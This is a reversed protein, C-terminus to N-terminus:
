QHRPPPPPPPLLLLLLLLLPPPPSTHQLLFFSLLYIYIFQVEKPSLHSPFQQKGRGLVLSMDPLASMLLKHYRICENTTWKLASQKDKQIRDIWVNMPLSEMGVCYSHFASFPERRRVVHTQENNSVRRPTSVTRSRRCRKRPPTFILEQEQSAVEKNDSTISVHPINVDNMSDEPTTRDSHNFTLNSVSQVTNPINSTTIPVSVSPIMTRSPSTINSTSSTTIPVSPITPLVHTNTMNPVSETWRQNFIGSPTTMLFPLSTMMLQTLRSPSDHSLSNLRHSKTRRSGAIPLIRRYREKDPTTKNSNMHSISSMIINRNLNEM